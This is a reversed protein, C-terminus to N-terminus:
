QSKVIPAGGERVASVFLAGRDGDRLPYAVVTIKDGPTLTAPRWGLRFLEVPAGLEISWEAAGEGAVVVQIWSHPNTWQFERVVGSLTVTRSKDFMASSHHALSAGPLTALLTAATLALTARPLTM